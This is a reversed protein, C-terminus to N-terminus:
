SAGICLAELEQAVDSEDRETALSLESVLLDRAQELMQREGYSLDKKDSKLRYLDRLVSATELVSGTRLKDSYARYRRNWTKDKPKEAEQRLVAYVGQVEEPDIVNRLGVSRAKATPVKVLTGDTLTLTYVETSFGGLDMTAIETIEGIGKGGYVAKDGVTFSM